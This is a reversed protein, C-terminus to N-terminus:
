LDSHILIEPGLPPGDLLEKISVQENTPLDELQQSIHGTDSYKERSVFEGYLFKTTHLISGDETYEIWISDMRGNYWFGERWISGNEFFYVAKGHYLNDKSIDVEGYLDNKSYILAKRGETGDAKEYTEIKATFIPTTVMTIIGILIIFSVIYFFLMSISVFMTPPKTNIREWVDNALIAKLKPKYSYFHFNVANVIQTIIEPSSKSLETAKEAVVSKNLEHAITSVKFSKKISIFLAIGLGGILWDREVIGVILLSLGAILKFIAEAFRNRYFLIDFVFRGGDFPYLPLLNFGNIFLFIIAIQRIIEIGTIFYVLGSLFGIIIGPIPGALDVIAKRTGSINFGEGSVAAGFLPIFFVRVNKYGFKNMAILHGLEHILIVIIFIIIDWIPNKFLGLSVFLVLSVILILINQYWSKNSNHLQNLEDIVEQVVEKGKESLKEVSHVGTSNEIEGQEISEPSETEDVEDIIKAPHYKFYKGNCKRIFKDPYNRVNEHIESCAGFGVDYHLCKLCYDEFANIITFFM